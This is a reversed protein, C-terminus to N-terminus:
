NLVISIKAFRIKATSSTESPYSLSLRLILLRLKYLPDSQRHPYSLIAKTEGEVDTNGDDNYDTEVRM